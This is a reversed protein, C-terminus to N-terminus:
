EWCYSFHMADKRSKFNGGWSFGAEVFCKVFEPHDFFGGHTVGLGNSAANLDIALGYAHASPSNLTGRVMRINFCGDFTHLLGGLNKARVKTLAELLPGHMDLNAAIAHVPFKTSLVYWNPFWGEPILFMKLWKSQGEWHKSAFDIQGYRSVAAARTTQKM